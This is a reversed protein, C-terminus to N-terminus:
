KDEMDAKFKQTVKQSLYNQPLDFDETGKFQWSPLFVILPSSRAEGRGVVWLATTDHQHSFIEVPLYEM